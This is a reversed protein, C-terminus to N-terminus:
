NAAVLVTCADNGMPACPLKKGFIAAIARLHQEKQPSDFLWRFTGLDEENVALESPTIGLAKLFVTEAQSAKKPLKSKSAAGM